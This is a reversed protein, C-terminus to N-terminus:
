GRRGGSARRREPFPDEHATDIVLYGEDTAEEGDELDVKSVEVEEGGEGDDASVIGTNLAEDMKQFNEGQAKVTKGLADVSKAVSSVQSLVPELGAKVADAISKALDPQNDNVEGEGKKVELGDGAGEDGGGAGDGAGEAASGAFQATLKAAHATLKAIAQVDGAEAKTVLEPDLTTPGDDNGDGADDGEKGENEQGEGATEAAPKGEEKNETDKSQDGTETKAATIKSAAAELKFATAPVRNIVEQVYGGFDNVAKEIDGKAVEVTDSEAMINWITDQLASMGVGISPMATNTGLVDKFDTSEFDYGVFGKRIMEPDDFRIAMAVQDNIKFVLAKEVDGDKADTMPFTLSTDDEVADGHKLGAEALISAAIAPDFGKQFAVAVIAPPRAETKQFVGAFGKSFDLMQGEGEHKIIRFPERNAGRDVLSIHSVSAGTLEKATIKV